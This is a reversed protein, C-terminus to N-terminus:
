KAKKGPKITAAVTRIDAISVLWLKPGDRQARIKGDKAWNQITRTPIGTIAHATRIPVLSIHAHATAAALAQERREILKSM